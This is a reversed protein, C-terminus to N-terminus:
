VGEEESGGAYKGADQYNQSFFYVFSHDQEHRGKKARAGQGQM